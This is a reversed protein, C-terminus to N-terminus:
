LIQCQKNNLWKQHIIFGLCNQPERAYFRYMGGVYKFQSSTRRYRHVLSWSYSELIDVARQASRPRKKLKKIKKKLATPLVGQVPSWGTALGSRVCLVVCVCFLRMCVDMGWTPNSGLMGTNLRAFVTWTKSREAVANPQRTHLRLIEYESPGPNM